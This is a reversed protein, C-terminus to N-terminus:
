VVEVFIREGEKRNIAILTDRCYVLIPQKKQNKIVKLRGGVTLGISIIRTLFRTDGDISCIKVLQHETVDCLKSM